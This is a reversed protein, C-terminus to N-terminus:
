RPSSQRGPRPFARSWAAGAAVWGVPGFLLAFLVGIGGGKILDDPDDVPTDEPGDNARGARDELPEEAPSQLAASQLDLLLM